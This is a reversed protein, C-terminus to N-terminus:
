RIEGNVALQLKNPRHEFTDRLKKRLQPVTRTDIGSPSSPPNDDNRGNSDGPFRQSLSPLRLVHNVMELCTGCSVLHAIEQIPVQQESHNDYRNEIDSQTTHEGETESFIRRRLEVFLAGPEDPLYQLSPFTKRAGQGMFYLSDPRTLFAKAELRATEILKNVAAPTTQLLLVIESPYYGLFFRLILVSAARSSSRRIRVYECIGALDSRVFLLQSRDIAFLAYEVSDYDVARLSSLADTGGGLGNSISLNRLTKYLYGRLGDENTTDLEAKSQVFRVYLDQVLDEAEDKSGRSLRLAWDLLWAYHDLFITERDHIKEIKHIQRSVL